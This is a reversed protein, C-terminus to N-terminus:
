PTHRLPGLYPWEKVGTEKGSWEGMGGARPDVLCRQRGGVSVRRGPEPGPGARTRLLVSLMRVQWRSRRACCGCASCRGSARCPRGAVCSLASAALAAAISRGRKAPGPGAWPHICRVGCVCTGRLRVSVYAFDPCTDRWRTTYIVGQAIFLLAIAGHNQCEQVLGWLPKPPPCAVRTPMAPGPSDFSVHQQCGTCPAVWSWCIALPEVGQLGTSPSAADGAPVATRHLPSRRPAAAARAGQPFAPPLHYLERLM